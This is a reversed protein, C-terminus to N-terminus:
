TKIRDAITRLHDVTSQLMLVQRNVDEADKAHVSHQLYVAHGALNLYVSELDDATKQLDNLIDKL